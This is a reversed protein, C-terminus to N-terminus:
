SGLSSAPCARPNESGFITKHALGDEAYRAIADYLDPYPDVAADTFECLPESTCSQKAYLITNHRLQSWSALQTGLIRRGWAETTAVRPMNAHRAKPSLARLAGLWDNYLSARWFSAEHAEILDRIQGLEAAYPKAKMSPELLRLAHDNGLAAFAVDLPDPMMRKAQTREYSVASLVHSDVSYRQGFLGFSLDFTPGDSATVLRSVIQERGLGSAMLGSILSADDLQLAGQANDVHLAKLLAPIQLVTMSDSEGVFLRLTEEIEPARRLLGPDLLGHLTLMAALAPRHLYAQGHHMSVLTLLTRGLWMASRFYSQLRPSGDYHGRPKLQSADVRLQEGFLEITTTGGDALSDLLKAAPPSVESSIRRQLLADAVELYVALDAAGATREAKGLNARLGSLLAELDNWLVHEELDSLMDDYGRHVADLISDASIFVPLDAAYITVYGYTYSPFQRQGVIAFGNRKLVERDSDSLRLPSDQIKSLHQARLPNYDLKADNANLVDDYRSVLSSFGDVRTAGLRAQLQDLLVRETEPLAVGRSATPAARDSAAPELSAKEAVTAPSPASHCAEVLLMAGYLWRARM